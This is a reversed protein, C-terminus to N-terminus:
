IPGSGASIPWSSCMPGQWCLWICSSIFPLCIIKDCPGQCLGTNGLSGHRPRRQKRVGSVLDAPARHLGPLHLSCGQASCLGQGPDLRHGQVPGDAGPFSQSQRGSYHGPPKQHRLRPGRSLRPACGHPLRSGRKYNKQLCASIGIAITTKGVGPIDDMLIHGGALIALLVKIMIEDKGVIVKGVERLILRANGISNINDM